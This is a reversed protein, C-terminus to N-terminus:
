KILVVKQTAINNDANLRIFYVGSTFDAANWVYEYVGPQAYGSTLVGMKQGAINYVSVEFDSADLLSFEITTTPNFPNPYAKNIAFAEPVCDQCVGVQDTIDSAYGVLLQHESSFKSGVGTIAYETGISYASPDIGTTGWVKVIASDTGATLIMNKSGDFSQVESFVGTITVLTGEYADNNATSPTAAIPAPLTNDSSIITYKFDKIEVTSFYLDVEGVLKVKTGKTLDSFLEYNYLNLGRGSEDQIYCSTMDNRLVGAGITIIGEITKLKGDYATINSHIDSIDTPAGAVTIAYTPSKATETGSASVYYNLVVNGSSLAPIAGAYTNGSELWMDAQNEQTGGTGYFVKITSPAAVGDEPTIDISISIESGAQPFDTTVTSNTFSYAVPGSMHSGISGFYDIDHVIWESNEENTGASSAWDPNGADVSPKRILTHDKTAAAVGAVAFDVDSTHDGIVDVLIGDLFLGLADNGNFCVTYAGPATTSYAFTIDAQALISADAEANAVVYVEGAALTGTLNLVLADRPDGAKYYGWGFGDRAVKVVYPALNVAQDSLNYLEFAKNNSSGEIYESFILETDRKERVAIKVTDRDILGKSDTVVLEYSLDDPSGPATFTTTVSTPSTLVPSASGAVKIWQYSAIDDNPDTSGSGDLTVIEDLFVLQDPGADAVPPYDTAAGSYATWSINDVNVQGDGNNTNIFKIVFDGPLNVTIDGSNKVVMNEDNSTLTAVEMGNILVKLNVNASFAQMYDFNLVGIGGSISGSYFNSQPDRNRGIMISNGTITYDGRCQTYTWTSGDQGTFTGDAYSNGALSFGDFTELGQAWAASAVLILLFTILLNRKM